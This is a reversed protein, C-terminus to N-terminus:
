GYKSELECALKSAQEHWSSCGESAANRLFHAAEIWEGAAVCKWVLQLRTIQDDPCTILLDNATPM